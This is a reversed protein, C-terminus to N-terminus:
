PANEETRARFTELATVTSLLDQLTADSHASVQALKEVSGSEMEAPPRGLAYELWRDSYCRHVTKSKALLQALEVANSYSVNTGDLPYMSTADVPKGNDMDRWQGVADYNEFAFGLPNILTEHCSNCPANKTLEAFRERNTQNPKLEPVPPINPPPAPLNSCLFDLSIHVGRLIPNSQTQSGYKSLFGIQTLFGARQEPDLPVKQLQSGFSGSVGYFDATQENVFTFPSTLLAEIGGGEVVSVERVFSLAEQQIVPQLATSFTPFLTQNKAITGYEEVNLLQSHFAVLTDEARPDALMKRTWEEVGQKSSLADAEAADLLEDSPISNWLAYSLRSAVEYSSLWIKGDSVETSREVRYLFHVSQLLTQIVLEAGAAYADAGGVLMPGQAFLGALADTEAAELPRRFARRGLETVFARPDNSAAGAPRIRALKTADGAVDAAVTEAARQYDAWLNSSVIREGYNDFRSDDPDTAFTAALEPREPLRLLDRVSNGWQEHSLRPFRTTWAVGEVAPEGTAPDIPIETSGPITGGPTSSGPGVGNPGAGNPGGLAGNPGGGGPLTPPCDECDTSGPREISGTCASAVLGLLCPVAFTRTLRM